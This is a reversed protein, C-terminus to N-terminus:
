PADAPAEGGGVHVEGSGWVERHISGTVSRASVSGSGAIDADIDGVQATVDIDGSGVISAELRQVTAAIDVDGSGALDIKADNVAGGQVVLNGSGAGDASLDGNLSAITVTGSGAIDIDAGEAVAGVSLEGSGAVDANLSHAAGARIAGSGALDVNLDGTLDGITASGCSSFDLDLSDAAGIELAGAGSRDISLTRPARITIRPLQDAAFEGYGRLSAGGDNCNSIRGRLQGDITVRGDSASVTPMPAQGPTNDIEILYDTRDEPTIVITAAVAKFRLSSGPFTEAEMRGPAVAVLEATGRADAHWDDGDFHFFNSGGFMAGLGFIVAVVIAAVFVFREM